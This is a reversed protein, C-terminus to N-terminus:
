KMLMVNLAMYQSRQVQYLVTVHDDKKLDKVAKIGGDFHTKENAVFTFRSGGGDKKVAFKGSTTDVSLVTGVFETGGEARAPTQSSGADWALSAALFLAPIVFGNARQMARM